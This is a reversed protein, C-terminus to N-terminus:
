SSWSTQKCPLNDEFFKITQHLVEISAVIIEIIQHKELKAVNNRSPNALVESTWYCSNQYYGKWMVLYRTSKADLICETNLISFTHLLISWDVTDPDSQGGTIDLRQLLDATVQDLSGLVLLQLHLPGNPHGGLGQPDGGPLGRATLTGLGPVSELQPDVLPHDVKVGGGLDDLLDSGDGDFWTYLDLNGDSVSLSAPEVLSVVAKVVWGTQLSNKYKKDKHM